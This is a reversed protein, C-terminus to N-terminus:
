DTLIEKLGSPQHQYEKIISRAQQLSVGFRAVNSCAATTKLNNINGCIKVPCSTSKVIKTFSNHSEPNAKNHQIKLVTDNRLMAPTRITLIADAIKKNEEEESTFANAVFRVEVFEGLHSRIFTTTQDMDKAVEASTRGITNIAIEFGDAELAEKSVGRFKSIGTLEGKPWDIPIIIKFRGKISARNMLADGALGPHVVIAPLGNKVSLESAEFLETIQLVDIEMMSVVNIM